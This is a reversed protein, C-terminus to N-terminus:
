VTAAHFPPGYLESRVENLAAVFGKDDGLAAGHRFLQPSLTRPMNEHRNVPLIWRGEPLDQRHSFQKKLQLRVDNM